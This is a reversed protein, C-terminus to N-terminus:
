GLDGHIMEFFWEFALSFLLAFKLHLQFFQFFARFCLEVLKVFFYALSDVIQGFEELWVAVLLVFFEFVELELVCSEMVFVVSEVFHHVVDHSSGFLCFVVYSNSGKCKHYGVGRLIQLLLISSLLQKTRNNIVIIFLYQPLVFCLSHSSVDGWWLGVGDFIFYLVAVGWIVLDFDVWLWWLETAGVEISSSSRRGVVETAWLYRLEFQAVSFLLSFVM